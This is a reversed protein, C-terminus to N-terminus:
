NSKLEGINNRQGKRLYYIVPCEMLNWSDGIGAKSSYASNETAQAPLSIGFIFEGNPSFCNSDINNKDIFIRKGSKIEDVIFDTASDIQSFLQIQTKDNKNTQSVINSLYYGVLLIIM